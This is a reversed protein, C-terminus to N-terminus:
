GLAVDRGGDVAVRQHLCVGLVIIALSSLSPLLRRYIAFGGTVAFLFAIVPLGYATGGHDGDVIRTTVGVTLAVYTALCPLSRLWGAGLWALGCHVAIERAALAAANLLGMLMFTQAIDGGRSSWGVKWSLALAVNLLVLWLLWLAGFRAFLVWPLILLAWGTFLECSEAGTQYIQGFVALFVGTLVCAATLLVQGALTALGRWWAGVACLVLASEVIAFKRTPSLDRWNYAFFFIVGALLLAAGLFLLLREIWERWPLRTRLLREVAEAQPRTLVGAEAFTRLLLASAPLSNESPM